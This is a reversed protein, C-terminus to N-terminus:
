DKRYFIHNDIQTVLTMDLRWSPSVYDAHYFTAGELLGSYRNGYLIKYATNLSVKWAVSNTDIYDPKGDCYWSFQCKDRVPYYERDEALVKPNQRTKWSERVPGEKVVECITQPWRKDTVRNMVVLGVAVKGALSQNGAEHYINEAMCILEQQSVDEAAIASPVLFFAALALYKVKRM